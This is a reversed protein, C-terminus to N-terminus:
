GRRDSTYSAPFVIHWETVEGNNRMLEKNKQDRLNCATEFNMFTEGDPGPACVCDEVNLDRQGNGPIEDCSKPAFGGLLTENVVVAVFYGGDSYTLGLERMRYVLVLILRDNDRVKFKDTIVFIDDNAVTIQELIQTRDQGRVVSRDDNRYRNGNLDPWTESSKKNLIEDTTKGLQRLIKPHVSVAQVIDTTGDKVLAVLLEGREFRSRTSSIM